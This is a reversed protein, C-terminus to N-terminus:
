DFKVSSFLYHVFWFSWLLGVAGTALMVVLVMLLSYGLYLTASVPGSLCKLKFILYYISYLFIYLAVSGSAFFSKWWWKWDEGCLHMYTLVLSVEACVVVLLILVVFLFGFDYYGRGMWISSMISFLEIFLAGFSLAGGGLVVLWSPYKKAPIERPIHNTRVPYEIHPAKAGFYGGLFTLPITICFWIFVLIVFLSFPIAATSSSRWLLFNLAFLILFTIGPFFCAVKWSVSVWGKHDGCSITQWMCVAVYGALIGLIMSFNLTGAVLTGCSAPSVFGLAAFAITVVATGLIWVGDGVMVCLLTPHSPARFVDAVVVKWGSLEENMEAQGQKDLEEFRTLNRSVTRLFIVLIIGALIIIVILSNLISFWDVQAGVTKSYVDFRSGWKIDSEVFAVEYTFAVPENEKIAMSVIHNYCDIKSPYKGYTKLGKLSEANHKFSCPEVEFGVVVNTGEEEYKRVFVTFKLHNFVYYSDVVRIGIPYGNWCFRYDSRKAYRIAPLDDLILNVEYMEEIRNSLSKFEDSSLPKTQCLFINTENTHMKFKYPSNQIRDGMLLEGLNQPSDEVGEPPQCFPLSYYSYPIETHISTLSNVKVSLHDGFSLAGGGLVLLWSPYKKVPIERLVQNIRVPYEIHPAKAGFYGGVITLPITICFWLLVLIVFLSFPIAAISKSRWLLFNLAFLILLAIGPFFCAVKWSVSVWGKHDGYFITRWMRVAVYGALIGLIMYFILTSTVLTGRLLPHWLGLAAFTITVFATGLIWVGDGVMVCLLAPHSPARFVDAVVVKWGSLEENMQPQGEKGLEEYRTLNRSVTRLFIVLIIGGLIIIVILANLISFWDVQAGVTKSYADFRSGWKIDSEVFAVEYTFVVPENEKIAMSVNTDECDIKSPYEFGVVVNTEEEYKRVFVTFKLHNFVYYSDQVRTGILYGTWWFRYSSRVTYRISPLDDLILNVEYMEEIRNSLLKFEDSSLPKTQCLFIDTENTHMKFKYPSNQIRDGMLLEGLNQPSDNVGEQPQCFPLTYYSYPIETDISTLSNVKVSLHDGIAYKPPNSGTLYFGHGLQFVLCILLVWIKSRDFVEM